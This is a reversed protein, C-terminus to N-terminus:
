RKARHGQLPLEESQDLRQNGNRWCRRSIAQSAWLFALMLALYDLATFATFGQALAKKLVSYGLCWGLIQASANVWFQHWRWSWHQTSKACIEQPSIFIYIAYRGYFFSVILACLAYVIQVYLAFTKLFDVVQEM